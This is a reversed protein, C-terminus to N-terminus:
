CAPSLAIQLSRCEEALSRWIESLQGAAGIRKKTWQLLCERRYDAGCRQLVWAEYNSFWDFVFALSLWVQHIEQESQPLRLLPLDEVKWIPQNLQCLRPAFESRRVFVGIMGNSSHWLGFGWFRLCGGGPLILSYQTAAKWGAPPRVQEFGMELLLNGGPYRVDCGFLWFQQDM